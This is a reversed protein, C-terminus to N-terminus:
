PAIYLRNIWPDPTFSNLSMLENRKIVPSKPGYPLPFMSYVAQFILRNGEQVPQGKHIGYTDELFAEGTNGTLQLVNNQGFASMVEGDEFRRIENLKVSVSSYKVYIHPGNKENVDTLYIFLKLFRWDDVDRHFLEAQQAGIKTHYSWWAALYSLTPKCGLFTAAIDLIFPDNAVQFLYPATVIDRANHHAIHSQPNRAASDPSFPPTEPRYPDSVRLGSFYERLEMCQEPTLLSGLHSIGVNRLAVNHKCIEETASQVPLASPRMSAMRSSLWARLKPQMFRRQVYFVLWRSDSLVMLLRRFKRKLMGKGPPDNKIKLMRSTICNIDMFPSIDEITFVGM